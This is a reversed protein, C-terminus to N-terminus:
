SFARPSHMRRPLLLVLTACAFLSVGALEMGPYLSGTQQRIFGVTYPGAFGGLNAISTILAIGSAASFGNLFECPLSYFVPVASFTGMAAISLLVVSLLMSHALGLLILTIGAVVSCIAIHCRRELRQDSHRSVLVMGALAVLYPVMLFFGLLTNSRAGLWSKILQPLWFSLSYTAV